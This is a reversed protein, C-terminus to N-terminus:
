SRLRPGGRFAAGVVESVWEIPKAQPILGLKAAHAFYLDLGRRNEEDLSFDINERLYSALKDTPLELERAAASSIEAIRSMGFDRSAHFDAVVEPTAVGKRAAWV